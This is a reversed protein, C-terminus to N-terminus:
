VKAEADEAAPSVRGQGDNRLIFRCDEFASPPPLLHKEVLPKHDAGRICASRRASENVSGELAVSLKIVAASVVDIKHRMGPSAERELTM